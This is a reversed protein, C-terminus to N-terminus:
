RITDPQKFRQEVVQEDKDGGQANNVEGEESGKGEENEKNKTRQEEEEEPDEIVVVQRTRQTNAKVTVPTDKKAQRSSKKGITRSTM